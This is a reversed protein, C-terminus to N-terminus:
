DLDLGAFRWAPRPQAAAELRGERLASLRAELDARQAALDFGCHSPGYRAFRGLAREMLSSAGAANSNGLHYHAVAVQILGQFFDRSPGRVGSWLEELSDHCEFYFGANFERAGRALLFLDEPSLRPDEIM